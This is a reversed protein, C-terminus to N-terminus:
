RKEEEPIQEPIMRPHRLAIHLALHERAEASDEYWLWARCYPCALTRQHRTM